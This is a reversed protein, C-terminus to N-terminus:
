TDQFRALMGRYEPAAGDDKKEEGEHQDSDEEHHDSGEEDNDINVEDEDPVGYIPLGEPTMGIPKNTGLDEDDDIDKDAEAEAEAWYLETDPWPEYSDASLEPYTSKYRSKDDPKIGSGFSSGGM